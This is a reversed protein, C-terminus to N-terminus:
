QRNKVAMMQPISLLYHRIIKRCRDKAKVPPGKLVIRRNMAQGPTLTRKHKRSVQQNTEPQAVVGDWLGRM